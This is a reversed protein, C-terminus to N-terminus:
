PVSAGGEADTCGPLPVVDQGDRPGLALPSVGQSDLSWPGLLDRLGGPLRCATVVWSAVPHSWETDTGGGVCVSAGEPWEGRLPVSAARMGWPHLAARWLLVLFCPVRVSGSAAAARRGGCCPSDDEGLIRVYGMSAVVVRRGM